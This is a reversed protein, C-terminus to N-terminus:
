QNIKVQHFKPEIHVHNHFISSVTSCTCRLDDGYKNLILYYTELKPNIFNKTEKYPQFIAYVIFIALSSVLLIIYLRTTLQGMYKARIRDANNGFTHMPFINLNLVKERLQFVLKKSESCLKQAWTM